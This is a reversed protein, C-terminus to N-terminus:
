LFPKTSQFYIYCFPLSVHRVQERSHRECFRSHKDRDSHRGWMEAWDLMGPQMETEGSGDM